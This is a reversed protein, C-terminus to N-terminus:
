GHVGDKAIERRGAQQEIPRAHLAVDCSQVLSESRQVYGRARMELCRLADLDRAAHHLRGGARRGHRRQPLGFREGVSADAIQQVGDADSRVLEVTHDRQTSAPMGIGASM